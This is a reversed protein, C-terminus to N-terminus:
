FVKVELQEEMSTFTLNTIVRTDKACVYDYFDNCPDLPPSSTQFVFAHVKEELFFVDPCPYLSDYNVFM